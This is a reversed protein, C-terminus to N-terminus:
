SVTKRAGQAALYHQIAAAAKRADRVSDLFLGAGRVLAGGAFVGPVNTMLNEDVGIRGDPSVAIQSLDGEACFPLSDFGFAVLVVDAPLDFESGPIPQPQPRGSADPEGLQTRLCRVHAVHGAPNGALAIPTALFEFRAGEELAEAFEHRHAPLSAEDRRYVCLVDRPECRRATRLCDMAVDGGGLVVVRMGKVDIPATEAPNDLNKQIIFALGQYVGHLDAGPIELPRAQGACAGFFVADHQARLDQLSIDRGSKVGMRFVVGLQQLLTIRRQVLNKQLKFAPIGKVLLGGPEAQADFVTVGYGRRALDYACTLGCPGSDVIAVKLGTPPPPAVEMAGHAFGYDHLFREIANIAVPDAHGDLICNSECPRSCVRAFIEEMCSSTQLLRAADLFRGESTLALWEPIQNNLPCGEVCTPEPCQICRSAQERATEEDLFSYVEFFDAIRESASRKPSEARSVERWSYKSEVNPVPETKM